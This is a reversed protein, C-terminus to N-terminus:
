VLSQAHAKQVEDRLANWIRRHLELFRPTMRIEAVDRPRPLDIGFQGIPRSAPGASMLVVRDSLSIAEELDHTVFVVSKRDQSWLDLLENEMLSRTQVDLASFPEDMLLLKPDLILMQALSVRKRMGGSLEHPYKHGHASLGVRRLWINARRNAEEAAVQRFELGAAVNSLATRWPMLADSQFLYGAHANIADLATGFAVVSGASPRLLGAAVNLLTSKGCGTPGVVAVFEGEGVRLDVGSIATYPAAGSFRSPFSCTVGSLELSSPRPALSPLDLAKHM